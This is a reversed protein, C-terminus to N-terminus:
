AATHRVARVLPTLKLRAAVREAAAQAAERQAFGTARVDYQTSGDALTVARSDCPLHLERLTKEAAEPSAFRGVQVIYNGLAHPATPVAAKLAPTKLAKAHDLRAAKPTEPVLPKAAPPAAKPEIRTLATTATAGVTVAAATTAATAATAALAEGGWPGTRELNATPAAKAPQTKVAGEASRGPVAPPLGAGAPLGSRGAGAPGVAASGPLQTASVGAENWADAIHLPVTLQLDWPLVAQGAVASSPNALASTLTARRALLTEMQANLRDAEDFSSLLVEQGQMAFGLTVASVGAGQMARQASPFDQPGFTHQGDRFTRLFDIFGTPGKWQRTLTMSPFNLALTTDGCNALSWAFAQSVPFNLNELVIPGATCRLTLTTKQPVRLAGPNLTPPMANLVVTATVGHLKAIRTQLGNVQQAIDALEAQQAARLAQEASKDEANRQATEVMDNRQRQARSVFAYFLGNLPVNQGWLLRPVYASTTRLVFAKVPGNMYTPVLGTDGYLLQQTHTPDSVGQLPALVQADWDQQLSNAAVRSVYQLTFDLPGRVLNWIPLDGPAAAIAAASAQDFAVGTAILPTSKIDASASFQYADAALKLAHGDGKALIDGMGNLQRRYALLAQALAFDNRKLAELVDNGDNQLVSRGVGNSLKLLEVIKSGAQSPGNYAVAQLRDLRIATNVWSPQDSLARHDLDSAQEFTRALEHLLQRYPSQGSLVLPMASRWADEGHLLSPAAAFATVFGYWASRLADQYQEDFSAARRTWGESYQGTRAVEAIFQDIAAHGDPTYAASIRPLEPRDSIGWFQALTVPALDGQMDAWALLWGIPRRPLALEDLMDRLRSREAILAMRKPQWHLYDVYLFGFRSSALPDFMASRDADAQIAVLDAGVRPLGFLPKGALAADLLNIRRVLHQAYAAVLVDSGNKSVDQIRSELMRDIGQQLAQQQFEASFRQALRAQVQLVSRHFPFVDLLGNNARQHVWRLTQIHRLLIDMRTAFDGTSSLKHEPHEVLHVLTARDRVFSATMLAGLTFCAILWALVAAHRMFRRWAGFHGTPRWGSRRAPLLTDFLVRSFWGLPAHAGDRDNKGDKSGQVEATVFVGQLLPTEGYPNHDFAPELYAKLPVALAQVREPVLLEVSQNDRMGQAIRIDALRQSIQAFAEELFQSASPAQTVLAGFPQERLAEPLLRGWEVFGEIADGHTLVLYVPVRVDYVRTLTDIRSRAERGQDALQQGSTQLLTEISLTLVIGNLPERRRTRGLWYLLRAWLSRSDTASTDTHEFLRGAPDLVVSHDFYWWDFLATPEVPDEQRVRRLTSALRTRTLLASKGSGPAGLMLLWPLAYLPGGVSGQRKLRSQRLRKLGARWAADFAKLPAQTGAVAMGAAMQRLGRWRLWQRRLALVGWGCGLALVFLGPAAWLPWDLYLVLTWCALALLVLGLVVGTMRLLKRLM